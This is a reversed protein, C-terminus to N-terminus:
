ASCCCIPSSGLWWPATFGQKYDYEEIIGKEEQEAILEHFDEYFVSFSILSYEKVELKEEGTVEDTEGTHLKLVIDSGETVFSQVKEERFLKVLDSYIMPDQAPTRLLLFLTSALIVLLLVYFGIDRSRNRQPKM